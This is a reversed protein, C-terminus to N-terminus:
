DIHYARYVENKAVGREKAVKKISENTTLGQAVYHEVHQEMELHEWWIVEEPSDKSGEVIIVLEGRLDSAIPIIESVQGRIFEEYQKTLERAIAIRRDGFIELMANLTDSIRHPSEYFILTFGQYRLDTLEKKKKKKDRNLFGYFIFPQPVIGSAILASLAANAGPIPIVAYGEDSVQSVIEYGPDSICPLGADSVLAVEKGQMLLQLIYNGKSDKNHEHYSTLATEIEFYHCLKKTHRTDEAAIIDVSKLVEIARPSMDSLNGIPTAVLYLSAKDQKFSKQIKM